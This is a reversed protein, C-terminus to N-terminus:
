EDDLNPYQPPAEGHQETIQPYELGRKVGGPIIAELKVQHHLEDGFDFLYLFSQGPQLPLHELRYKAASREAEAYPSEYATADDWARGSLFFAYLHDDDWDFAEQIAAHLHHLTQDGRMEIRRWVSKMWNLRVQFRYLTTPGAESAPEDPEDLEEDIWDQFMDPSPTFSVDVALGGLRAKYSLTEGPTLPAELTARSHSLFQNLAELALTLAKIERENEPEIPEQGPLTKVFTPVGERSPPKLGREAMWDLYTPDCEDKPNFFCVLGEEVLDWVDLGREEADGLLQGLVMRVEDPPIQDVPVGAGRLMELAQDIAPNSAQLERGRQLFREFADPSYYFAVGEAQGMGGLISAYLTQVDPQPGHEGLAIVLPPHDPLYAWPERRWLGAAAAYLPTLLALPQDWAFPEPPQADDSAGLQQALSQYAAEFAPIDQQYEVPVNLPAFLEQAARALAENNVILRSPLGPQFPPLPVRGKKGTGAESTGLLGRNSIPIPPPQILAQALTDLAESTGGDQPHYVDSTLIMGSQAELWIAIHPQFTEKGERLYLGLRRNGGLITLDKRQPLHALQAQQSKQPGRKKPM